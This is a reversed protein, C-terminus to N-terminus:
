NEVVIGEDELTAKWEADRGTTTNYFKLEVARPGNAEVRYTWGEGVDLSAMRLSTHPVYELSVAGDVDVIQFSRTESTVAPRTTTTPVPTPAPPATPAVTTLQPVPTTVTIPVPAAVAPQATGITTTPTTPTSQVPATQSRTTARPGTTPPTAVSAPPPENTPTVPVTVESVIVVSTAVPTTWVAATPASTAALPEAEIAAATATGTPTRAAGLVTVDLFLAFGSAIVLLAGAGAHVAARRISLMAVARDAASVISKM